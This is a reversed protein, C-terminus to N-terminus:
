RSSLAATDPSAIVEELARRMERTAPTRAQRRNQQDLQYTVSLAGIVFIVPV